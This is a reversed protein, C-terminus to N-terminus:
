PATNRSRLMYQRGTPVVQLVPFIFPTLSKLVQSRSFVIPQYGTSSVSFATQYAASFTGGSLIYAGGPNFVGGTAVEGENLAPPMFLRGRAYRKPTATRLQILSCIGPRLGTSATARTGLAEINVVGQGIEAGPYTEGTVTLDHLTHNAPLMGRYSTRLHSDIDTAAGQFNLPSTLPDCEYHFVNM